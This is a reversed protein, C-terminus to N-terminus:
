EEELLDEARRKGVVNSWAARLAARALEVGCHPLHVRTYGRKGWAGRVPFFVDPEDLRFQVQEAPTLKVVGWEDDPYGLTAFVKGRVRFDPHEQHSAAVAGPLALALERFQRPTM